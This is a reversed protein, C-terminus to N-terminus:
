CKYVPTPPFLSARMYSYLWPLLHNPVYKRQNPFSVMNTLRDIGEFHFGKSNNWLIFIIKLQFNFRASSKGEYIKTFCGGDGINFELRQERSQFWLGYEWWLMDSWRVTGSPWWGNENLRSDDSVQTTREFNSDECSLWRLNFYSVWLASTQPSNCLIGERFTGNSEEVGGYWGSVM